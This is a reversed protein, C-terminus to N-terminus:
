IEVETDSNKSKPEKAFKALFKDDTGVVYYAALLDDSIDGWGNRFSGPIKNINAVFYKHALRLQNMREAREKPSIKAKERRPMSNEPIVYETLVGTKATKEVMYDKYRSFFLSALSKTGLSDSFEFGNQILLAIQEEPTTHKNQAINRIGNCVVDSTSVEVGNLVKRALKETYGERTYNPDIERLFDDGIEGYCPTALDRLVVIATAVKADFGFSNAIEETYAMKKITKDLMPEGYCDTRYLLVKLLEPNQVRKKIIEKRKNENM